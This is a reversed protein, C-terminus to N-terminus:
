VHRFICIVRWLILWHKWVISWFMINKILRQFVESVGSEDVFFHLIAYLNRVVAHDKECKCIVCQDFKELCESLGINLHDGFGWTEAIIYHAKTFVLHFLCLAQIHQRVLFLLHAEIEIRILVVQYDCHVYEHIKAAM